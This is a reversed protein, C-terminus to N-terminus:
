PGPWKPWWLRLISLPCPSPVRGVDHEGRGPQPPAAFRDDTLRDDVHQEDHPRRRDRRYGHGFRGPGTRTPRWFIVGPPMPAMWRMARFSPSTWSM